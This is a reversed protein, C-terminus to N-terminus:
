EGKDRHREIRELMREIGMQKVKDFDWGEKECVLICQALLDSLSIKAEIKYAPENYRMAYFFMKSMDGLEYMM